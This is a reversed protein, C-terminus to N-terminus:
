GLWFFFLDLKEETKTIDTKAEKIFDDITIEKDLDKKSNVFMLLQRLTANYNNITNQALGDLADKVYPSELQADFISL